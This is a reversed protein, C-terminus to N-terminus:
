SGSIVALLAPMPLNGLIVPPVFATGFGAVIRDIQLLHYSPDQRRLAHRDIVPCVSSDSIRLAKGM